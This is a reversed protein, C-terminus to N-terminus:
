RRGLVKRLNEGTQVVVEELSVGKLDAVKRIDSSQPVVLQWVNPYFNAVFMAKDTQKGKWSGAGAKADAMVTTMSLAWSRWGSFACRGSVGVKRFGSHIRTFAGTDLSYATVLAM